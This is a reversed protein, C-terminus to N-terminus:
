PSNALKRFLLVIPRGINGSGGTDLQLKGNAVNHIASLRREYVRRPQFTRLTAHIFGHQKAFRYRELFHSNIESAIRMCSFRLPLSKITELEDILIKIYASRKILRRCDTVHYHYIAISILKINPFTTCLLQIDEGLEFTSSRREDRKRGAVNFNQGVALCLSKVKYGPAAVGDRLSSMISKSREMFYLDFSTFETATFMSTGESYPETHLSTM